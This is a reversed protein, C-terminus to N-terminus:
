GTLRAAQALSRLICDHVAAADVNVLMDLNPQWGAVERRDIILSGTTLEGATEVDAAVTLREFLEPNTLSVLTVVDHLCIGERGLLQRYARFAHPLMRRLLSGARSSEDPVDELLDFGLVVQGTTELPVVTKRMPTRLVHGAATPNCFFNFDACPTINGCGNSTGGSVIVERVLDVASPDRLLARSINTLPGLAIITVERPYARLTELIVKESLNSGHRGMLPIGADGLGDQGHISRYKEPLVVDTPASGLRPFKPPDLLSVLSHLNRTAQESSVNGGTATVAVVELRPDFLAMCLAVADDVGPDMDLIVRRPVRCM